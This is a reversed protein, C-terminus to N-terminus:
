MDVGTGDVMVGVVVGGLVGSMVNDVGDNKTVGGLEGGMMMGTVAADLDEGLELTALQVDVM